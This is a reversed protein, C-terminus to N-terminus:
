AVDAPFRADLLDPADPATVTLTVQGMAIEM